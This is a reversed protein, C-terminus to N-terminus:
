KAFGAAVDQRGPDEEICRENLCRTHAQAPGPLRVLLGTSHRKVVASAQMLLRVETPATGTGGGVAIYQVPM